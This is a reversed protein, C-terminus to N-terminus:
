DILLEYMGQLCIEAHQMMDDIFIFEDAQHVRTDVGGPLGAGFAVGNNRLKRAYTGAGMRLMAAEEGTIKKYARSLRVIVPHTEPVYVPLLHRSQETEIGNMRALHDLTSLIGAGDYSIPYRINCLAEARKRDCSITRLYVVLGGSVSDSCAIGLSQGDTEASIKSHLFRLFNDWNTDLGQAILFAVMNAIANRSGTMSGEVLESGATLELVRDAVFAASLNAQLNVSHRLNEVQGDTLFALSLSATCTEPILTLMSGGKLSLLPLLPKASAAEQKSSFVVNMNGMEVNFIPYGADPAFAMDPLQEREFYYDLDKMGSEENTGFILRLRRNGTIGLDMLTKLAYLAVVAPGKNDSAGRGIIKGNEILGGFPPSTWGEGEEVTDLHVLVAALEDGQGYEVHGVYGDVNTVEFGLSEALGLMYQLARDVGAGFPKGPEPAAMISRIQVLESIGAAIANQYKRIENGIVMHM